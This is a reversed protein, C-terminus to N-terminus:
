SRGENNETSMLLKNRQYLQKVIDCLVDLIESIAYFHFAALFIITGVVGSKFFMFLGVVMLIHGIWRSLKITFSHDSM